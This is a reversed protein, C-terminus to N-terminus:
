LGRRYNRLVTVWEAAPVPASTFTKAFAQRLPEPWQRYVQLAIPPVPYAVPNEYPFARQSILTDEDHSGSSFPHVGNLGGDAMLFMFLNLALQFNDNEPTLLQNNALRERAGPSSFKPTLLRSAFNFTGNNFIFQCSDTDIFHVLKFDSSIHINNPTLDCFVFKWDHAHLRALQDALTIAIHMTDSQKLRARAHETSILHNLSTTGKLEEMTFGILVQQLDQFSASNVLLRRPWTGFPLAGGLQERHLALAVLRQAISRDQRVKQTFDPLFIKGLLPPNTRPLLRFVQGTGGPDGLPEKITYTTTHDPSALRVGWIKDGPNHM